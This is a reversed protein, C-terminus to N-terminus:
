AVRLIIMSVDERLGTGGSFDHAFRMLSGIVDETAPFNRELFDMVKKLGLHKGMSNKIKIIGDSLLVFMDGPKLSVAVIKMESINQELSRNGFRLYRSVNERVLVPYAIGANLFRLKSESFDLVGYLLSANQMPEMNHGIIHKLEKMLGILNKGKINALARLAGSLISAHMGGPVGKEHLSGLAIGIHNEDLKFLSHFGGGIERATMSKATIRINGFRLDLDPNLTDQIVQASSLESKIREEELADQFYIANQVALAAQDSFILFLKMDDDTFGTRNTPNISQIVGLFKGKFHLPACIIAKTKFGTIRDFDPNFRRDAYVDNISVPKRTEAVWGAIGQGPKIRYKEVLGKGAEGLAVKFVLDNTKEEYLLLTSAETKMIDTITEMILALLRGMDLTSNIMGNINILKTLNVIQDEVIAREHVLDKKKFM